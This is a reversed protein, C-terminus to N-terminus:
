DGTNREAIPHTNREPSLKVMSGESLCRRDGAQWADHAAAPLAGVPRIVSVENPFIGVVRARRKVEKNLRQLPNTSWM